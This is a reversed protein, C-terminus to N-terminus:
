QVLPSEAGEIEIGEIRARGALVQVYQMLGRRYVSERLYDAILPRAQEFTYPEGGARAELYVVHYGYRTEIPGPAIEGVTLRALAREFEPVTRGSAITGMQGGQERSPCDSYRAAFEAFRGIDGDLERILDRAKRDAAERALPEEPVMLLIHSVTHLLPSRLTDRNKEFYRRCSTEDPEPVYVEQEILQRILAEDEPEGPEPEPRIGLRAAEQLMLERIVLARAAAERADAVSSAPHYQTELNIAAETIPTGNVAVHM